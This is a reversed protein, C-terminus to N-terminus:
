FWSVYAYEGTPAELLEEVFERLEDADIDGDADIEDFASEPIKRLDSKPIEWETAYEVNNEDSCVNVDHEVLWGYVRDQNWGFYSGGYEIEHKTQVHGSMSM